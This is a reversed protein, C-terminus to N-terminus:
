KVTIDLTTKLKVDVPKITTGSTQKNQTVMRQFLINPKGNKNAKIFGNLLFYDTGDDKFYNDKAPPLKIDAINKDQVTIEPMIGNDENYLSLKVSINIKEGKKMIIKINKLNTFGWFSAQTYNINKINSTIVLEKLKKCGAFAGNDISDAKGPLKYTSEKKQAPYVMLMLGSKKKEFLVGNKATYKKNGSKVKIEKLSTCNGFIGDGLQTTKDPITVASLKKCNSFAWYGITKLSGPIKISNLSYCGAFASDGLNVLGEPLKVETLSKCGEFAAAKIDTISDPLMVEKLNGCGSFMATEINKVNDPIVIGTLGKCNKFAGSGIATVSDPISIEKLNKCNWFTKSGIATVSDPITIKTVNSNNYFVRDGIGTVNGPIVIDTDTGNYETLIGDSDIIFGSEAARTISTSDNKPLQGSFATVALGLALMTFLLYRKRQKM